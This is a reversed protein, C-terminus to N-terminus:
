RQVILGDRVTKAAALLRLLEQEDGAQIAARLAAIQEEFRGLAALLPGRNDAFIQRWLEPDGAA